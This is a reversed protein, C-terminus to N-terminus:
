VSACQKCSLSVATVSSLQKDVDSSGECRNGTDLAVAAYQSSCPGALQLHSDMSYSDTKLTASWGDDFNGIPRM